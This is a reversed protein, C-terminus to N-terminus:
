QNVTRPQGNKFLLYELTHYGRVNQAAGITESDENFDGSWEMEDWNQSNLLNVIADVDLPWSDMNPDLGEINVPGILFSESKEWPERATIWANCCNVFNDDSPNERFTNVAELLAHNQAQLEEYTPLVVADVFQEAIADLAEAYSPDNLTNNAFSLLDNDLTNALTICATMAAVAEESDINNRFPQPIAQIAKAAEFIQTKIAEDLEPNVSAVLKSLSHEAIDGEDDFDAYSAYADLNGDIKAVDNDDIRGYYTNRISFINNTYDDRSHWSFWSEVAYLGETQNGGVYLDYPDKIKATGVENAINWMGGEIMEEICALPSPYDGGTQDKFMTAYPGQGKYDETWYKYLNSADQDLLLATHYMYNGWAAANDATYDLDYADVVETPEDDDGPNPNPNPNPEPDDESCASMSFAMCVALATSYFFDKKKM